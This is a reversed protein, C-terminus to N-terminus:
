AEPRNVVCQPLAQKLAELAKESITTRIGLGLSKLNKLTKLQMIGADTLKVAGLLSLTELGSFKAIEALCTDDLDPCDNLSLSSLKRKNKFATLGSGTMGGWGELRLSNLNVLDALSALQEDTLRRTKGPMSKFVLTGLRTLGSMSVLAEADEAAYIRLDYLRTQRALIDLHQRAIDNMVLPGIRIRSLAFPTTPLESVKRLNRTSTEIMVDPVKHDEHSPESSLPLSLVWATLQRTEVEATSTPSADDWEVVYGGKTTSYHSPAWASLGAGGGNDHQFLRPIRAPTGPDVTQRTFVFPEDTVWRWPGAADDRLGGIWWGRASRSKAPQSPLWPSFTAWVWDHEKQSTLTALHGGMSKANADAATWIFQGPVFQYRHGNGAFVRAEPLPPEALAEPPLTKGEAGPVHKFAVEELRIRGSSCSIAFANRDKLSEPVWSGQQTVRSWDGKWRYIERGDLLASMGEDRLRLLIEHPHGISLYAAVHEVHAGNDTISKGDIFELGARPRSYDSIAFQGGHAGIHFAVTLNGSGPSLRTIEIRLDSAGPAAVPLEIAGGGTDYLNTLQGSVMKWHGASRHKTLDIQALVDEWGTNTALPLPVPGRSWFFLALGAAIVAAGALAVRRGDLRRRARVMLMASAGSVDKGVMPVLALMPAATIAALEERLEAVSQQREDRDEEMAKCIIADFRPDLGPVKESPLKFMGRPVTGTLMEYLLVGLSYIDARHDAMSAKSFVEPAAYGQSGMSTGSLTLSATAPDDIKALGFDAVKVQDGSILINSPKIDRHVVGQAHACILADCVALAIRAAEDAPLKGSSEIRKALDAGDVFEMVYFLHGDGTEGFDHVPVINPHSLRAMAQAEVKFRTAFDMGSERASSHASLLKVAVIRSLSLQRAKYVAGMGGRGIFDLVEYNPLIENLTDAGPVPWHGAQASGLRSTDLDIKEANSM